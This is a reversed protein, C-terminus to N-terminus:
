GCNVGSPPVYCVKEVIEELVVIYVEEGRYNILDMNWGVLVECRWCSCAAFVDGVECCRERGGQIKSVPM